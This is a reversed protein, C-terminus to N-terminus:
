FVKQFEIKFKVFDIELFNIIKIAVNILVRIQHYNM